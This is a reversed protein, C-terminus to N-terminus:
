KLLLIQKIKDFFDKSFIGYDIVYFKESSEGLFYNDLDSSIEACIEESLNKILVQEKLSKNEDDSLREMLTITSHFAEWLKKTLKKAKYVGPAQHGYPYLTGQILYSLFSLLEGFKSEETQKNM